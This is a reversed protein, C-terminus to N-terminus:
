FLFAMCQGVCKGKREKRIWAIPMTLADPNIEIVANIAPGKKDIADIRSLYLQTISRSTHEGNQMKKQLEDITIENLIFDRAGPEPTKEVAATKEKVPSTNCSAAVGISALTLGALSSNKIFNRREM